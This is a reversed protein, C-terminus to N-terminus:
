VMMKIIYIEEYQLKRFEVIKKFMINIKIKKEKM